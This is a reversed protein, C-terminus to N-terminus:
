ESGQLDQLLPLDSSVNSPPVPLIRYLADKEFVRFFLGLDTFYGGGVKNRTITCRLYADKELLFIPQHLSLCPKLDAVPVKLHRNQNRIHITGDEQIPSDIKFFYNGGYKVRTGLPYYHPFLTQYFTELPVVAISTRRDESFPSQLLSPKPLIRHLAHPGTTRFFFPSLNIWYFGQNNRKIVCQRYSDKQLLFVTQGSELIPKLKAIPVTLERNKNKIRITGDPLPNGTLSFTNHGDYKVKSGIPYYTSFHTQYFVEPTTVPIEAVRKEELSSSRESSASESEDFSEAAFDQEWALVSPEEPEPSFPGASLRYFEPDTILHGEEKCFPVIKEEFWEWYAAEEPDLEEACPIDRLTKVRTRLPPQPNELNRERKGLSRIAIEQTAEKVSSSPKEFPPSFHSEVGKSISAFPVM